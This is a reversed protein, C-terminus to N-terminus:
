FSLLGPVVIETKGSEYSIKTCTDYFGFIDLLIETPLKYVPATPGTGATTLDLALRQEM